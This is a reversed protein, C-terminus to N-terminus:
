PVPKVFIRLSGHHTSPLDQVTDDTLRVVIGNSDEFEMEFAELSKLDFGDRVARRVALIVETAAAGSQWSTQLRRTDGDLSGKLVHEEGVRSTLSAQIARALDDDPDDAVCSRRLCTEEEVTALSARIARGLDDDDDTALSTSHDTGTFIVDVSAAQMEAASRTSADELEREEEGAWAKSRVTVACSQRLAEELDSDEATKVAEAARSAEQAELSSVEMALALEEEERSRETDKPSEVLPEGDDDHDSDSAYPAEYVTASGISGTEIWVVQAQCRKSLRKLMAKHCDSKLSPHAMILEVNESLRVEGHIQAEKYHRIVDSDRGLGRRTSVEVAARLEKDSYKELVHAYYDVTALQSIEIGGSDRAAFTTRLRVNRLLLYSTGYQSCCRIGQPDNTVNLVGYKCRDVPHAGTYADGFLDTEWRERTSHSLCGRSVDTEFQNRYHTDAALKDGFAKLDVHIIIPAEDQIWSLTKDLDATEFGLRGIRQKLRPLAEHHLTMTADRVNRLAADQCPHLDEFTQLAWHEGFAAHEQCGFHCASGRCYCVVGRIPQDCAVCFFCGFDRAKQRAREERHQQPRPGPPAATRTSAAPSVMTRSADVRDARLHELPSARRAYYSSHASAVTSMHVLKIHEVLSLQCPV